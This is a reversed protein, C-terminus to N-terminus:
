LVGVTFMLSGRVALDQFRGTRTPGLNEFNQHDQNPGLSQFKERDQNPRTQPKSINRPGPGYHFKPGTEQDQLLIKISRFLFKRFDPSFKSNKPRSFINDSCNRIRKALYHRTKEVNEEIKDFDFSDSNSINTLVACFQDLGTNLRTMSNSLKRARKMKLTKENLKWLQTKKRPRHNKRSRHSKAQAVFFTVFTLKESTKKELDYFRNIFVANHRM